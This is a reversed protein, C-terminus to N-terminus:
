WLWRQWRRGAPERRDEGSETGAGADRTVAARRSETDSLSLPPPGAGRWARRGTRREGRTPLRAAYGTPDRRPLEDARGGRAGAGGRRARRSASDGMQARTPAYPGPHLHSTPPPLHSTAPTRPPPLPPSPSPTHPPSLHTTHISGASPQHASSRWVIEELMENGLAPNARPASSKQRQLPSGLPSGEGHSKRPGRIAVRGHSSGGNDPSGKSLRKLYAENAAYMRSAYLDTSSARASPAGEPDEQRLPDEEEGVERRLYPPAAKAARARSIAKSSDGRQLAKAVAEQDISAVHGDAQASHSQGGASTQALAQDTPSTEAAEERMLRALAESRALAKAAEQAEAAEKAIQAEKAPTYDAAIAKRKQVEKMHVKAWIQSPLCIPHGDDSLTLACAQARM